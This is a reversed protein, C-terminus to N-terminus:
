TSVEADQKTAVEQFVRMAETAEDYWPVGAMNRPHLTLALSICQKYYTRAYSQLRFVNRFVFGLKSCFM